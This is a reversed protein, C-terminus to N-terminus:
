CPPLANAAGRMPRLTDLYRPAGNRIERVAYLAGDSAQLEVIVERVGSPGNALVAEVHILFAGHAGTQRYASPFRPDDRNLRNPFPAAALAAVNDRSMGLLAALLAPPAVHPDIGDARSHVTVFPLLALFTQADVGTVQDLELTTQFAARKPGFPKGDLAPPPPVDNEPPTRYTEIERAIDGARAPSMALLGTLADKLLQESATNLDVKGSEDEIAVAVVANDFACFDAAGLRRAPEAGTGAVREEALALIALDAAAAAILQAQAAGAVNFATQLRLRGTALFSVVLLSIAGLGWIVVLLAFGKRPGEKRSTLRM